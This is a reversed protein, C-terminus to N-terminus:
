DFDKLALARAIERRVMRRLNRTIREGMTGQLEERVLRAVIERLMDEDIVLDDDETGAEAEAYGEFAPADTVSHADKGADSGYDFASLDVDTEEEDEPVEEVDYPMEINDFDEWEAADAQSPAEPAEVVSVEISVDDLPEEDAEADADALVDGSVLPDESLAKVDPAVAKAPAKVEAVAEARDKGVPVGLDSPAVTHRFVFHEVNTLTEFIDPEFAMDQDPAEGVVAELEAIRDELSRLDEDMAAEDAETMVAMPAEPAEPEAEAEKDGCNLRDERESREAEELAAQLVDVLNTDEDAEESAADSAAGNEPGGQAREDPFAVSRASTETSPAAEETADEAPAESSPADVRFAPTLVLASRVESKDDRKDPDAASVLRRVASLVDEIEATTVPESM